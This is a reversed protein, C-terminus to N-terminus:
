EGSRRCTERCRVADGVSALVFEPDPRQLVVVPVEEVSRGIVSRMRWRAVVTPDTANGLGIM